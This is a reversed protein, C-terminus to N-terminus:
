RIVIVIAVLLDPLSAADGGGGGRLVTSAIKVACPELRM